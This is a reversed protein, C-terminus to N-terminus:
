LAVVNYDNDKSAINSLSDSKFVALEAQLDSIQLYTIETATLPKTAYSYYLSTGTWYLLGTTHQLILSTTKILITDLIHASLTFLM